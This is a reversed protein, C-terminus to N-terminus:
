EEKETATASSVAWGSGRPRCAHNRQIDVSFRLVDVRGGIHREQPHQAVQEAEGAGFEAAADRLAACARHMKVSRRYTRAQQRDSRDPLALDRGDFGDTRCGCARFHLARPEIEFHDLATVALGALDHRR